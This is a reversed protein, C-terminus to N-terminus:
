RGIQCCRFIVAQICHALGRIPIADVGQPLAQGHCAGDAPIGHCDDAGQGTCAFTGRVKRHVAPPFKQDAGIIPTSADAEICQRWVSPDKRLAVAPLVGSDAKISLVALLTRVGMEGGEMRLPIFNQYAIQAQIHDIDVGQVAFFRSQLVRTATYTKRVTNTGSVQSEAVGM